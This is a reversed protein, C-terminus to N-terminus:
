SGENQGNKHTKAKPSTPAPRPNIRSMGKKRSKGLATRDIFQRRGQRAGNKQLWFVSSFYRGWM